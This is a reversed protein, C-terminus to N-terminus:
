EWEITGPPKSTIDYVVRNVGDVENIIRNSIKELLEYPIRAWDATMADTSTVARLVIPHAYSRQDGMVGVSKVPLLVTLIQWVEHYYNAKKLEDRVIKDSHRVMKLKAEDVEGLIRIALGPGPFPHRLRIEDNLGLEKALERVEDKFLTKIPELLKFPLNDPLGGVNHHSKITAAVRKGTKPNIRVGSSEILDSYLTGQALYEINNDLKKVEDNFTEIFEKGIIKRKEEPDSIGKLKNLFRDKADIRILNINAEASFFNEIEQAEGERMFGHDIFMCILQDGIAKKLLLALTSSDVGGSLALLVKKTGLETRIKEIEYDIFNHMSWEQKAQCIRLVFNEIIKTGQETHNVEPHFQIGYLKKEPNAIAAIPTNETEAILKFGAPISTVHDGHSMWSNISENEIDAFLNEKDIITLSAKGYERELSAEVIGGNEQALLQMGYCIGLIPLGCNLINPDCLLAEDDYISNPGGSLIIGSIIGEKIEQEIESFKLDFNKVESFVNLKRVRKTILETYQSGFDLILIKSKITKIETISM